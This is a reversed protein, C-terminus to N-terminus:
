QVRLMLENKIEQITQDWNGPKKQRFLRMRPYWPTSTEYGELGPLWRWEPAYPLLVWVDKGLAGAIHVISTDASIILDLNMILAATDMFRGHTKDFDDIMTHMSPLSAVEEMGFEKQLSYLSVPIETLPAFCALPISRRTTAHDELYIPKAHWCIGIKYPITDKALEKKWYDILNPEARLYPIPAPINHLGTGCLMPLSLMPIQVDSPPIPNGVAIVQDIYDCLSFLPVLPEFTQVIIHAGHDHLLKAYRLFHVMDGLGWESRILVRKGQISALSIKLYGFAQQILEPQTLRYEFLPWAQDFYGCALLSKSLGLKTQNNSPSLALSQKYSQIAELNLNLRTQIYGCNYYVTDEAPLTISLQKYMDLADSLQDNRLAIQAQDQMQQWTSSWIYTTYAILLFFKQTTMNM